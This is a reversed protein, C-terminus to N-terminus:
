INEGDKWRLTLKNFLSIYDLGYKKEMWRVMDAYSDFGDAQAEAETTLPAIEIFYPDLERLESSIIQAIGLIKREKSRPHIVIQVEEGAAWDRDLRPRRFTMFEANFLKPWEREFGLIRM